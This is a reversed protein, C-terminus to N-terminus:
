PKASRCLLTYWIIMIGRIFDKVQLTIKMRIIESQTFFVVKPNSRKKKARRKKDSLTARRVTRPPRRGAKKQCQLKRHRHRPPPSAHVQTVCPMATKVRMELKKSANQVMADFDEVEDPLIDHNNRKQRAAQVLKKEFMGNSSQNRNLM